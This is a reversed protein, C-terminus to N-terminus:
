KRPLQSNFREVKRAAVSPSEETGVHQGRENFILNEIAVFRGTPTITKVGDKSETVSTEAPPTSKRTKKDTKVGEPATTEAEIEKDLKEVENTKVEAEEVPETGVTEAVEVKEKKIRPM